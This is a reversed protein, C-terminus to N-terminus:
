KIAANFLNTRISIIVKYKSKKVHTEKNVEHAKESIERNKVNMGKPIPMM